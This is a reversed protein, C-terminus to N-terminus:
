RRSSRGFYSGAQRYSLFPHLKDGVFGSQNPRHMTPIWDIKDVNTKRLNAIEDKYLAIFKDGEKQSDAYRIKAVSLLIIAEDFEQGMEHVDNDDVLRYPDKYYQVWIDFTSNPLPYLQVKRYLIGATTDGVPLVSVTNNASNTTASIRGTTSANKVVREITSFIKSGNANASGDTGDTAITEYDPYGAVVGFVTISKSTDATVSSKVTVVSPELPQGIVMDTGWMRYAIPINESTNILGLGYFEQDTMYKLTQPSGYEEHWMFMRHGAQIPLNYEEQGLISYTGETTTASGTYGSSIALSSEGTINRIYHFTPDGSLKIRRGIKIGDAIFTAGVVAVATSGSTFSGSGSATAYTKKTSFYTKRRMCRWPAERGVRFLSTNIINKVATDYTTGGQDRVARRKVEAQLDSFIFM